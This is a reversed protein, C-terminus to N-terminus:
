GVLKYSNSTILIRKRYNSFNRYGFAIRKLAKIKNNFGEAIANTFTRDDYTNKITLSNLIEQKWNRFISLVPKFAPKNFDRIKIILQNISQVTEDYTSNSSLDVINLFEDKMECAFTLESSFSHILDVLQRETYHNKLTRERFFKTDDLEYGRKNLLSWHRKILRYQVSDRSFSKMVKVRTENVANSFYRVYHFKDAIITANPFCQKIVSRFHYSMDIIVFKVNKRQSLPFKFFYSILDHKFRTPLIDILSRNVFDVLCTSYKSIRGTHSAFM